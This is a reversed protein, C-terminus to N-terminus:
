EAVAVLRGLWPHRRVDLRALGARTALARLEDPSYARRVSLPGDHRAFRHRTFLRTALWVMALTLRSRLLDNIVVGLRATARM